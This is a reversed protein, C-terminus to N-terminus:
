NNINSHIGGASLVSSISVSHSGQSSSVWSVVVSVNILSANAGQALTVTVNPSFTSALASADWMATTPPHYRNLSSQDMLLAVPFIANPNPSSNTAVVQIYNNGSATNSYTGLNNTLTTFSTNRLSDIVENAICTAQVQQETQTSLRLSAMVCQVMASLLLALIFLSVLVEVLFWGQDDRRQCDQFLRDTPKRFIIKKRM